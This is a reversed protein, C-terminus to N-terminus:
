VRPLIGRRVPIMQVAPTPVGGVIRGRPDGLPADFAALPDAVRYTAPRAPRGGDGRGVALRGPEVLQVDGRDILVHLAVHVSSLSLGLRPVLNRMSITVTGDLDALASLCAATRRLSAQGVCGRGM